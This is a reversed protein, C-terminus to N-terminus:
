TACDPPATVSARLSAYFSPAYLRLFSPHLPTSLLRAPTYIRPAYVRLFSAHLPTSLLRLPASFSPTYIRLFFARLPPSLLRATLRVCSPAYVRVCSAPTLLSLYM